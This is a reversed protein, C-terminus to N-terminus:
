PDDQMQWKAEDVIALTGKECALEYLEQFIADFASRESAPLDLWQTFLEEPKAEKMSSFDLDAFLKHKHFFRALLINSTQRFFTKTSYNRTM